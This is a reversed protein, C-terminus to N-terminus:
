RDRRAEAKAKNGAKQKGRTMRREAKSEYRFKKTKDKKPWQKKAKQKEEAPADYKKVAAAEESSDEDVIKQLGDKSVEVAEVTVTTYRDEDVYEEQHDIPPLVVKDEDFGNWADASGLHKLDMDEADRLAQNVADVHEQM